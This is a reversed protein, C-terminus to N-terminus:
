REALIRMSNRRKKCTYQGSFSDNKRTSHKKELAPPMRKWIQSQDSFQRDVTVKSRVFCELM